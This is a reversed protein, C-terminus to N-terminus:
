VVSKRDGQGNTKVADETYWQMEKNGWGGGGLDYNFFKANPATGEAENFEQSWLLKKAPVAAGVPQTGALILGALLGATVLTRVKM